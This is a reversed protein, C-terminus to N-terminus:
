FKGKLQFLSDESRFDEKEVQRRRRKRWQPFSEVPYSYEIHFPSGMVFGQSVSYKKHIKKSREQVKDVLKNRGLSCELELVDCGQAAEFKKGWM